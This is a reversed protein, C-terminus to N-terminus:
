QADKVLSLHPRVRMGLAGIPHWEKDRYENLGACGVLTHDKEILERFSDDLTRSNGVQAASCDIGEGGNELHDALTRLATPVGGDFDQPLKFQMCMSLLKM